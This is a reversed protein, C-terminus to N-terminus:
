AADAVVDILNVMSDDRIGAPIQGPWSVILPVRTLCDYFVGGKCQMGHEGMFDGHDSCFVVITRRRLDTRELADLIQGLADDIFRVMGYYVALLGYLDEIDDDQWSLMKSLVRNREPASGDDFESM